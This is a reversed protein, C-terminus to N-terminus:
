ELEDKRFMLREFQILNSEILYDSFKSGKPQEKKEGFYGLL